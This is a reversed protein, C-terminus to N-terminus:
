LSEQPSFFVSFGLEAAASGGESVELGIKSRALRFLGYYRTLKVYVQVKLDYVQVKIVKSALQVLNIELQPLNSDLQSTKIVAM